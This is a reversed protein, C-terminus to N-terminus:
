TIWVKFYHLKHAFEKSLNYFISSDRENTRSGHALLFSMCRTNPIGRDQHHYKKNGLIGRRPLHGVKFYHLKHAFEGSLNYFISPDRENTRSVCDLLFSMFKTNPTGRERHHYKTNGYIGRRPLHGVKFYHLKHAFEGSLNYFISPDRENTRSVHDLLDSMFRTNPTGHEQHHYNTNGNAEELYTALKLTTYNIPLSEPFIIFISPDRENTRSCHDLLVSMFRTNPIGRDQNHYKTNGLAEELYDM